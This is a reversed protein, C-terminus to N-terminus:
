IRPDPLTYRAWSPVWQPRSWSRVANMVRTDFRFDRPLPRRATIAGSSVSVCVVRCVAAALVTVVCSVVLAAILTLGSAHPAITRFAIEFAVAPLLFVAFVAFLMLYAAYGLRTRVKIDDMGTTGEM